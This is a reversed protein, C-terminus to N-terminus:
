GLKWRICSDIDSYNKKLFRFILYFFGGFFKLRKQAPNLILIMHTQKKLPLSAMRKLILTEQLPAQSIILLRPTRPEISTEYRREPICYDYESFPPDRLGDDSGSSSSMDTQYIKSDINVNSNYAVPPNEVPLIGPRSNSLNIPCVSTFNTDKAPITFIDKTRM